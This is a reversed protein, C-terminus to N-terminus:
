AHAESVFYSKVGCFVAFAQLAEHCAEIGVGSVSKELEIGASRLASDIAASEKCYGYGCAKGRGIAYQNGHVWVCAYCVQNPWYTRITVLPYGNELSYLILSRRLGHNEKRYGDLSNLEPKFSLVTNKM